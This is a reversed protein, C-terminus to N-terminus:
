LALPKKMADADAQAGAINGLARRVRMRRFLLDHDSPARALLETYVNEAHKLDGSASLADGYQRRIDPDAIGAAFATEYLKVAEAARGQRSVAYALDATIQGDGTKIGLAQRLAHEAEKYKHQLILTTGWEDWLEADKPFRATGKQYAADSAAYNKLVDNQLALNLYADRLNPSKGIATEFAAVAEKAKEQQAYVLGFDLDVRGDNPYANHAEKLMLAARDPKGNKLNSEAAQLMVEIPPKEEEAQLPQATLLLYAGILAVQRVWLESAVSM